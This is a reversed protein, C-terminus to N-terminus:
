ENIILSITTNIDGLKLNLKSLYEICLKLKREAKRRREVENNFSNQLSDRQEELFMIRETLKEVCRNRFNQIAKDKDHAWSENIDKKTTPIQNHRNKEIQKLYETLKKDEIEDLEDLGNMVKGKHLSIIYINM